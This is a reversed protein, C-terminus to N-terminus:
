VVDVADLLALESGTLRGSADPDVLEIGVATNLKATGSATADAFGFQVPESVAADLTVSLNLTPLNTLAFADAPSGVTPDFEITFTTAPMTVAVDLNAGAIGVDDTSIALPAPAVRNAALDFTLTATGNAVSAHVDSFEFGEGDLADVASALQDTDAAALSALKGFPEHLGLLLAPNTGLGPVTEVLDGLLSVGALDAGAAKIQDVFGAPLPDAAVARATPLVLTSPLVVLAGAALAALRKFM